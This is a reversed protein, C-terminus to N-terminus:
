FVRGQEKALKMLFLLRDSDNTFKTLQQKQELTLSINIIIEEGSDPKKLTLTCEHVPAYVNMKFQSGTLDIPEICRKDYNYKQMKLTQKFRVRQIASFNLKGSHKSRRPLRTKRLKIPKVLGIVGIQNLEVLWMNLVNIIIDHFNHESGDDLKICVRNEIHNFTGLNDTYETIVIEEYINEARSILPFDNTITKHKSVNVVDALLKYDSCISVLQKKSKQKEKPIHEKLHFLVTAFNISLKLLESVGAQPIKHGKSYSKYTTWVNEHFYANIDDFM